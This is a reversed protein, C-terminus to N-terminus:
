VELVEELHGFVKHFAEAYCDMLPFGNPSRLGFIGTCRNIIDAAVPYDERRYVINRGYHQCTWPCGKGYGEKQYFLTMDPILFEWRGVQVGEASLAKEVKQKFQDPPMSLGLDEPYFRIKYEYFCHKREPLEVPLRMGKIDRVADGFHHVNQWIVGNSWDLRALQSRAFAATMETTRYMWGMGYANYDRSGDEHRNEGFQQVRAAAQYVEEDDTVLLGGDGAALNKNGNLSFAGVNGIRGVRKGRYEAGHAQCCDEIVKLNHRRAIAMVKDLDCSLGYLHVPIIARTKDTIKEEIKDEDIIMTDPKIDVFVPIGNHHLICTATSTWSFATTIVEDGPQIGVGAVAMHLAATGSNTALCYKTGIYRAWEEQLKTVEPATGGWLIGRDLVRMVADKDEQRIEPWPKIFGDPVAKRGGRIALASKQKTAM